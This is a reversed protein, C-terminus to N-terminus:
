QTCEEAIGTEFNEAPAKKRRAVWVCLWFSIEQLLLLPLLLVLMSLPDPPTLLMSLIAILVASYPRYKRLKAPKIYGIVTLFMLVVPLEFAVGFGFMFKIIMDQAQWSSFAPEMSAIQAQGLFHFGTVLVFYALAAGAPFLLSGFFFLPIITKREKERLSPALSNWIRYLIFPISLTIGLLIAIKIRFMTSDLSIDNIWM